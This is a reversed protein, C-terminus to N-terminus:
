LDFSGCMDGFGDGIDGVMNVMMGGALAVLVLVNVAGM